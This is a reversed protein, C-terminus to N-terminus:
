ADIIEGKEEDFEVAQTKELAFDNKRRIWKGDTFDPFTVARGTLMSEEALVSISMWTAMDYVDIPMPKKHVLADFFADFVLEDMGGHGDKGPHYDVWNPHEYKEYYSDINNFYEKWEWIEGKDIFDEELYVSRNEECLLGKTGEVYFGRSYYRPTCTDLFITVTEGNQCKIVTTVVDSQRFEVDKLHEINKEKVYEKLGKPQNGVAVLSVFRNGTNIDLVKAIPGVEHTPYNETNRHIYEELRYQRNEVGTAVESRLDHRYGGQCHVITGFLGKRKMSLALLENRGYCCNEMMMIPTKTREYCRVLEWLSQLNYAGGVECAVAVGKEMAYMSVEIHAAWATAVVIADLNMEDICKKYDTYVVPEPRGAEKMLSIVYNCKDEYNDCLAVYDVYKRNKLAVRYLGSGRGGLGILAVRLKKM